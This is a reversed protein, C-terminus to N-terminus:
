TRLRSKKEEEEQRSRKEEREFFRLAKILVQLFGFLAIWVPVLLWMSQPLQWAISLVRTLLVAVIAAFLWDVIEM